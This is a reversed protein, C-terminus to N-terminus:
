VGEMVSSIRLHRVRREVTLVKAAQQRAGSAFRSM